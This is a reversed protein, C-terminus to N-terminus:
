MVIILWLLYSYNTNKSYSLGLLIAAVLSLTYLTLSYFCQKQLPYIITQKEDNPATYFLMSYPIVFAMSIRYPYHGFYEVIIDQDSTDNM